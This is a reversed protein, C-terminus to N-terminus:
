PRRRACGPEHEEWFSALEARVVESLLSRLDTERSEGYAELFLEQPTFGLVRGILVIHRIRLETRGSFLNRITGHGLGLERELGRYSIRSRRIREKLLALLRETEAHEKV